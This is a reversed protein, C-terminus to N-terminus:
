VSPPEPHADNPDVPNIIRQETLPDIAKWQVEWQDWMGDDDSDREYINTGYDYNEEIDPLGDNDRDDKPVIPDHKAREWLFSENSSYEASQISVVMSFLLVLVMIFVTLFIAIREPTFRKKKKSTQGAM